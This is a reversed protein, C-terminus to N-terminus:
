RKARWGPQHSVVDERQVHGYRTRLQAVHRTVATINLLELFADPLNRPTRAAPKM